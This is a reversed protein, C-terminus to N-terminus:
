QSVRGLYQVDTEPTNSIVRMVSGDVDVRQLDSGNDDRYTQIYTTDDVRLTVSYQVAARPVDTVLTAKKSKLDVIAYEFYPPFDWYWSSDDAKAIKDLEVDPAWLNVLLKGSAMPHAAYFGPSNLVEKLDVFFDPDFSDAGPRIRLVCLAKKTRTPNALADFGLAADSVLYVFGDGGDFPTTVTSACRDDEIVRLKPESSTADFVGIAAADHYALTDWDRWSMAVFGQGSSVIGRSVQAPLKNRTLPEEDIAFSGEVDMTTPNWIVFRAAVEDLFYSRTESAYVMDGSVGTVGHAAFSLMRDEAVSGDPRVILKRVTADDPQHVYVAKGLTQVNVFEGLEIAKGYDLEGNEPWSELVHLYQLAVDPSERETVVVLNGRPEGDKGTGADSGGATSLGADARVADTKETTKPTNPEADDDSCGVVAVSWALALPALFRVSARTSTVGLM